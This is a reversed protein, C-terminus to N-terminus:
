RVGVIRGGRGAKTVFDVSEVSEIRKVVMGYGGPKSEQVVDASGRISMGIYPAMEAIQDRFRSFVRVDAWLGGDRFVANTALTGALDRVTREPRDEAERADPHDLYCHTGAAFLPAAAKLVEASYYGSSGEGADILCVQLRGEGAPQAASRELLRPRVQVTTRSEVVPSAGNFRAVAERVSGDTVGAVPIGHSGERLSEVLDEIGFHAGIDWLRVGQDVLDASFGAERLVGGVDGAPIVRSAGSEAVGYFFQEFEDISVERSMM